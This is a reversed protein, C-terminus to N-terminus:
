DVFHLNHDILAGDEYKFTGYFFKDHNLYKLFVRDGPWLNLSMLDDSPHWILDGEPCEKQEGEYGEARFMHVEWDIGPTFNEFTLNGVPIPKIRLGAEEEIERICCSYPDEGPEAKGGLGNHKGEHMDNEKKNRHIMLTKGADQVYCLTAVVKKHKELDGM